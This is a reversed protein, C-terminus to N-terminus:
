KMRWQLTIGGSTIMEQIEADLEKHYKQYSKLQEELDSKKKKVAKDDDLLDKYTNPDTHTINQIEAKLAEIKDGIDPIDVKIDGQGLDAMAKRVLVELESLEKM